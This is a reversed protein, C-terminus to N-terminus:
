YAAIKATHTSWLMFVPSNFNLFNIMLLLFSTQKQLPLIQRAQEHANGGFIGEHFRIHKKFCSRSQLYPFYKDERIQHNRTAELLTLETYPNINNKTTTFKTILCILKSLKASYFTRCRNCTTSYM